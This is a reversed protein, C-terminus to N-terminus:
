QPRDPHFQPQRQELRERINGASVALVQQSQLGINLAMKENRMLSRFVGLLWLMVIKKRVMSLIRPKGVASWVKELAIAQPRRAATRIDARVFSYPFQCSAISADKASAKCHGDISAFVAM